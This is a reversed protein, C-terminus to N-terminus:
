PSPEERDRALGLARTRALFDARARRLRSAVTGAPVQLALAIESMTLEEIEYLVFVARLDLEMAELIRDLIRLARRQDSLEEPSPRGDAVDPLVGTSVERSHARARRGDAALRVATQILFAREKGPEIDDLRTATISFAQQVLDEVETASAGLNRVVRTALDLHRAVLSALRAQGEASTSRAAMLPAFATEPAHSM